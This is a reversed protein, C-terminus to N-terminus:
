PCVTNGNMFRNRLDINTSYTSTLMLPSAPDLSKQTLGVRIQVRRVAARQSATLRGGLGGPVIASGNGGYYLLAFYTGPGGSALVSAAAGAVTRTVAGTDIAYQYTVSEGADIAGNGNRDFQVQLLSASAAALGEFSKSCGPDAGAQRLERGMLDLVARAGQQTDLQATQAQISFMQYRYLSFMTALLALMMLSAILVEVLSM